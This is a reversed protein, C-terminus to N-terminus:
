IHYTLLHAATRRHGGGGVLIVIERRGDNAIRLMDRTECTVHLGVCLYSKLGWVAAPPNLVAGHM